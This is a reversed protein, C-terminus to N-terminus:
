GFISQTVRVIDSWTVIFILMLLLIFGATHIMTEWKANPKKGTILEFLLFMLRGGDLAPFPMINVVALSISIFAAFLLIKMFDGFIVLYYTTQAIAVPGGVDKPLTLKGILNSIVRGLMKVTTVSLKGTEKMAVIPAQLPPYKIGAIETPKSNIVVGISNYDEVQVNPSFSPFKEFNIDLRKRKGPTIIKTLEQKKGNQFRTIQFHFGDGKLDEQIKDIFEQANTIKTQDISTIIDNEMIGAKLAASKDNVFDTIIIGDYIKIIGNDINTQLGEESISLLDFDEPANVIKDDERFLPSEVVGYPKVGVMFLITLLFWALLFNMLVGACVVLIRWGIPRNFFARPDNKADKGADDEGLMRVFGGFPIWNFSWIMEETDKVKKGNKDKYEVQRITKKGWMRPPLGFGFEEVKIGAKRAAAFHGLEHILVLISFIILFTILSLLFTM